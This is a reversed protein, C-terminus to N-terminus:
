AGLEILDDLIEGYRRTMLSVHGEDPLLHFQAGSINRALWETHATPIIRDEGGQWVSVPAAIEALDFGWDGWIIKDDDFWGWIGDQVALPYSKVQFELFEGVFSDRDVESHLRGFDDRIQAGTTVQRMKSAEGELLRQLAEDGAELAEEEPGNVLEIGARWDLGHASRPAFTSIATVARVRDALLAADALAPGGGGSHGIVYFTEAGLRDAVFATDAPNDAYSRGRLRTSGLYGPRSVCAIRLGRKACERIQGEFIYHSGPTGTHFIVLDGDEPGAEEVALWRGDPTRARFERRRM